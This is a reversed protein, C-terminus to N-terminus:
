RDGIKDTKISLMKECEHLHLIFDTQNKYYGCYGCFCMKYKILTNFYDNIM